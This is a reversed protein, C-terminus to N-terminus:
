PVPTIFTSVNESGKRTGMMYPIPNPYTLYLIALILGLGLAWYTAIRTRAAGSVPVDRM